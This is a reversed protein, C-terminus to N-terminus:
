RHSSNALCFFGANRGFYWLSNIEEMYGAPDLRKVRSEIWRHPKEKIERKEPDGLQASPTRFFKGQSGTGTWSTTAHRQHSKRTVTSKMSSGSADLKSSPPHSDPKSVPKQIGTTSWDIGVQIKRPKGEGETRGRKPDAEDRPQSQSQHKQSVAQKAEQEKQPPQGRDIRHPTMEPHPAWKGEEDLAPVCHGLWDFASTRGTNAPPTAALRRQFCEGSQLTLRWTSPLDTLRM